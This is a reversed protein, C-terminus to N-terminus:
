FRFDHAKKQTGTTTTTTTYPGIKPRKRPGLSRLNPHGPEFKAKLEGKRRELKTTTV